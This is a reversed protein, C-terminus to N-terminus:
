RKYKKAKSLADLYSGRVYDFGSRKVPEEKNQRTFWSFSQYTQAESVQGTQKDIEWWNM